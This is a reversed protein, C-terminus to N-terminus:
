LNAGNLQERWKRSAELAATCNPFLEAKVTGHGRMLRLQCRVDDYPVLVCRIGDPATWLVTEDARGM